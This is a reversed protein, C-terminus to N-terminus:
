LININKLTKYMYDESIIYEKSKNYNEEIYQLMENYTNENLNNVINNLDSLNNFIIMGKTNFFKGIDPCGYYIPITGTQFCDILKETFYWDKQVNEITISFRYDKLAELKYEIANYGRGFLDIHERFKEIVQHRLLQGVYNRKSSAIISLNKTKTYIKQDEPKIWCGGVPNFLYNEKRDLLEKNFTLVYDFKLNNTKIWEYCSKSVETSELLWAIKKNYTEEVQNLCNDTFIVLDSCNINNRDWNIYQSKQYDTSYEAHSFLYDKIKLNIM